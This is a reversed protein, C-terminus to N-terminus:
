PGGKSENERSYIKELENQEYFIKRKTQAKPQTSIQTSRCYERDNTGSQDRQGPM